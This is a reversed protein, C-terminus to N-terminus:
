QLVKPTEPATASKVSDGKLTKSTAGPKDTEKGGEFASFEVISGSIPTDGKVEVYKDPDPAEGPLLDIEAKTASMQLKDDMPKFEDLSVMIDRAGMGHNRGVSILAHASKRDPALVVRIVEGFSASANSQSM